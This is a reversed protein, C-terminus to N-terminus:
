GGSGDGDEGLQFTGITAECLVKQMIVEPVNHRKKGRVDDDNCRYPRVDQELSEPSARRGPTAVVRVPKKDLRSFLEEGVGVEVGVFVGVERSKIHRASASVRAPCVLVGHPHFTAHRYQM